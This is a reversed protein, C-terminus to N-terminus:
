LLLRIHTSLSNPTCYLMLMLVKFKLKFDDRDMLTLKHTLAQAYNSSIEFKCSTIRTYAFKAHGHKHFKIAFVM